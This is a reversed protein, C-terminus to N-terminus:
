LLHCPAKATTMMSTVANVCNKFYLLVSGLFNQTDVSAENKNAIRKLASIIQIVLVYVFTMYIKNVSVQVNQKSAFISTNPSANFPFHRKAPEATACIPKANNSKPASIAAAVLSTMEM